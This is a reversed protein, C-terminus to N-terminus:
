AVFSIIALALTGVAVGIGAKAGVSLGGANKKLGSTPTPAATSTRDVGKWKIQIPYAIVQQQFTVSASVLTFWSVKETWLSHQDNINDMVHAGTTSDLDSGCAFWESAAASQGPCGMHDAMINLM